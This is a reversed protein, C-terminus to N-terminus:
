SPDQVNLELFIAGNLIHRAACLHLILSFGVEKLVSRPIAASVAADDVSEGSTGGAALELMYGAKCALMETGIQDALDRLLQLLFPRSHGPVAEAEIPEPLNAKSLSAEAEEM